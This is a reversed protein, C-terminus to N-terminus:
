SQDIVKPVIFEGKEPIFHESFSSIEQTNNENASPNSDPLLTIKVNPMISLHDVKSTDASKLIEFMDLIDGLARSVNPMEKEQVTINSLSAIKLIEETSIVLM